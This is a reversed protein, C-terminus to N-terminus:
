KAVNIKTLEGEFQHYKCYMLYFADRPAATIAPLKIDVTQGPAVDMDIAFGPITINHMKKGDNYVTFTVERNLPMQLDAPDYFPMKDSLVLDANKPKSAGLVKDAPKSDDGCGVLSVLLMVMLGGLM